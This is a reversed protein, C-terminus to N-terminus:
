FRQIIFITKSTFLIKLWVVVKSKSKGVVDQKFICMDVVLLDFSRMVEDSPRQTNGNYLSLIPIGTKSDVGNEVKAGAEVSGRFGHEPAFIGVVTIGERHLMDVVHEDTSYMATHNALVAVRRESLLPMYAATDAAGM